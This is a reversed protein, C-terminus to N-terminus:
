EQNLQYVQWSQIQDTIVYISQLYEIKENISPTKLAFDFIPMDEDMSDLILKPKNLILDDLFELIREESAFGFKYLPYQYVFRTPSERQSFYNVMTEAGWVLISDEKDSNAIVYQIATENPRTRLNQSNKYYNRFSYFFLLCITFVILIIKSYKLADSKAIWDELVHFLFGSFLALVPLISIFYHEYTIGPLNILLMEFPLAILAVSLLRTSNKDLAKRNITFIFGTIGLLALQLIGTQAINRFDFLKWLREGLGDIQRTSYFFNFVFASEWFEFIAGKAFFYGSVVLAIVLGGFCILLVEIINNKLTKEKIGFIFLYTVIAVWIGISTQKLFFALGGLVGILVYLSRNRSNISSRYFILLAGFQLPLVYEETLNGNVILFTLSFVWIFTGLIAAYSGFIRKMLQFGLYVAIYLSIFELVWVGWRSNNSIALGLANIYYIIPPKHDWINVYPIEGNLIRWGTYLFVGSDRFTYPSYAPNSPLLVFLTSLLVFITDRFSSVMLKQRSLM